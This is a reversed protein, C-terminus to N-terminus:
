LKIGHKAAILYSQEHIPDNRTQPNRCRWIHQASEMIKDWQDRPLLRMAEDMFIQNLGIMKNKPNIRQLLLQLRFKEKGLKKRNGEGRVIKMEVEHLEKKLLTIQEETSLQLSIPNVPAAINKDAQRQLKEGAGKYM